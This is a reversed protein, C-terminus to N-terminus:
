FKWCVVFCDFKTTIPEKITLRAFCTFRLRCIRSTHGTFTRLFLRVQKFVCQYISNSVPWPRRSGIQIKTLILLTSQDINSGSKSSCTYLYLTLNCCRLSSRIAHLTSKDTIEKPITNVICGHRLYGDLVCLQMCQYSPWFTKCM